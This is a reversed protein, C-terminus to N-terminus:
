LKITCTPVANPYVVKVCVTRGSKTAARAAGVPVHTPQDPDLRNIKAIASMLLKAPAGTVTLSKKNRAVAIEGAKAKLTGNYVVAFGSSQSVILAKNKYEVMSYSGDREERKTFFDVGNADAFGLEHAASIYAAIEATTGKLSGVLNATKGNNSLVVSDALVSGAFLSLLAITLFKMPDGPNSLFVPNM